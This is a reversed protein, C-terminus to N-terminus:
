EFLDMNEKILRQRTTTDYVGMIEEKTIRPSSQERIQKLENLMMDEKLEAKLEAKLQELEKNM